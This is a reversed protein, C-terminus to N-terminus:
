RTAPAPRAVSARPNAELEALIIDVATELQPDRGNIVLKPAMEVEVDPEVGVNEVEWEGAPSFIALRPATIVGGDLLVPNDYIGILGGWTRKGVLKGLGRRRFFLPMADGGSGAFENVVMVKPGFISAAPTSFVKGERTAWYSLLPRDLLDIVYDAVSGGGNFREDLIVAEKDLQSFYYRNFSAYGELATNSMYVYAVRGNTMESVKRRNEEVWSWHRLDTESAIPVVTVTRGDEPNTTPSVLLTTQRDATKEFLSYLNTPAHLARGNVALLYEGEAVNVGPETLPARLEPHWNLGPYIRQFRYYGDVLEYDAGLLGGGVHSPGPIDGLMVYAHGVTLEGVLEALVFNLDQRHGVHDLLPRYKAATAEWDLGHMHADYFFDRQIRVTEEFMQSWEARPDVYVEMKSLDLKDGGNDPKKDTGIVTFDNNKKGQYLLKRGDASIWFARVNNLYVEDKREKLDFAHLAGVLPGNQEAFVQTTELYFLKNNAVSLSHYDRAPVPLALIRQDLKDLDIKVEIPAKQRDNDKKGNEAEDTKKDDGNDEPPKEDKAPEDDSEPALPSPTEQSLVAVYLSSQVTREYSSMDLWGTNLGYNSSAAFFLYKGDPSFCASTADSLGDTLQHTDGTALEYLFVARIHTDLRKTYAIWKSDPSWAPDLSRIPHDYTDTDIHIPKPDNVDLYYLNLAKDTYAIKQSDPSWIPTYFFSKKGLPIVKKEQQGTQDSLHLEYEGSADSFYAIQQGDPSWAPYREHAGPTRTLNRIDGKKVPVTFIDGRAEFVARQGTPSIGANRIAHSANKYYPRAHPLDAAIHIHLTDTQGDAPNYLHIRGNQEYALVGDGATLSRIDFDDHHTLQTVATTPQHYSFLNMVGSRDSLFYVTDGLWCPFTDSANVHPIEVYDYTTLDLVWIRSTRGGRYRKWSWFPEPVYTYALFRGDPSFDGREAMPVPLVQPFDGPLSVTFFRRYRITPTNRSSAFLVARGDPTWGRVWDEGPHYTLRRPSGGEKGVVYVSTNGDYNASFALWQGDPSFMPTSKVGKQATLRRPHRGDRDALWIDNAYLFAVHDASVTPQKLLLTEGAASPIDSTM